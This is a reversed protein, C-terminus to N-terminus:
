SVLSVLSEAVFLPALSEVFRAICRPRSAFFFSRALAPIGELNQGAIWSMPGTYVEINIYM